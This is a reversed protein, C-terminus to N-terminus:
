VKGGADLRNVAELIAKAFSTAYAADLLVGVPGIRVLGNREDEVVEVSLTHSADANQSLSYVEAVPTVRFNAAAKDIDHELRRPWSQAINLMAVHTVLSGSFRMTKCKRLQAYLTGEEVFAEFCLGTDLDEQDEQIPPSTHRSGDRTEDPQLGPLGQSGESSPGTSSLIPMSDGKSNPPETLEGEYGPLARPPNAHKDM